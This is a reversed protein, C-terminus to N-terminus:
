SLDFNAAVFTSANNVGVLTAILTVDTADIANGDSQDVSYVQTDTAGRVVIFANAAPDNGADTTAFAKGAGFLEAFDANGYDKSDTSADVVFLNNNSLAAAGTASVATLNATGGAATLASLNLVDGGSATAGVNFGTITDNGAGITITNSGGASIDIADNGAGGDIVDNGAGAIISDNGSGGVINDAKDTGKITIGQTAGTVTVDIGATNASADITELSAATLAAGNLDAKVNGTVTITKANALTLDIENTDAAVLATTKSSTSEINITEVNAISAVGYDVNAGAHAANLKINFVDSNAGADAAGAVTVALGNAAAKLEVTGGTKVGSVTTTATAAANFTVYNINNGSGIKDVAIVDAATTVTAVTLKEFGTIGKKTNNVLTDGNFAAALADDLVLTDTGEGGDIKAGEQIHALATLSSLTVTDDGAGATVSVKDSLANAGAAHGLTLSDAASGGKVVVDAVATTIATKGTAASADLTTANAITGTVTLDGAGAFTVTKTDTGTTLAAVKNTGTSTIAYTEVGGAATNNDARVAGTDTSNTFVLNVTDATGTLLSANYQVTTTAAATVGGNVEVSALSGVNSVTLNATSQKNILASPSAWNAANVTEAVTTQVQINEIGSTTVLPATTADTITLQLTDTGAGGNISDGTQYSQTAETAGNQAAIFLDNGGTGNLADVGTTLAFTQGSTGVGDLNGSDIAAKKATVSADDSTVGTLASQMQGLTLGSFSSQVGFYEAVEVKNNLAAVATGYTADDEAVGSLATLVERIVVDRSAGANIRAEVFEVASATTEATVNSGLLNGVFKTAFENATLANSYIGTFESSNVLNAAYAEISGGNELGEALASLLDSGPAADFMGVLLTLLETRQAQSIAM